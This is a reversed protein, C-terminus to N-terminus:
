RRRRRAGYPTQTCRHMVARHLLAPHGLNNAGVPRRPDVLRPGQPHHRVQEVAPRDALAEAPAIGATLEGAHGAPPEVDGGLRDLAVREAGAGIVRRHDPEAGVARPLRDGVGFQV